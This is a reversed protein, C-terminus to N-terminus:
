DSPTPFSDKRTVDNLKRYDVCFRLDGNKRVLIVPSSWPSDSEEVVGRRHMDELMEGVDVQKASPLKRPPQHIPRAEGRDIFHYVSDTWRYDDSNM